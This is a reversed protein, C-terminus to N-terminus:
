RDKGRRLIITRNSKSTALRNWDKLLAFYVPSLLSSPRPSRTRVVDVTLQGAPGRRTEARLGYWVSADAPNAFVYPQPLHEICDYGPPFTVSCVLRHAECAGVELPATRVNGTLPFLTQEFVSLDISLSTPTVTAYAPAFCSYSRVAPYAAVDTVLERTASAGQSIGGLITQYHRQREEPLMEAYRKRFTGVEAGWLRETVDIDVGGNERVSM